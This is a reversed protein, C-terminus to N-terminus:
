ACANVVPEFAPPYVRALTSTCKVPVGLPIVTRIAVPSGEDVSPTAVRVLGGDSENPGPTRVNVAGALVVSEAFVVYQTTTSPDAPLM